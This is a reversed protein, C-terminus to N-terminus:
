SADSISTEGRAARAEESAVDVSLQREGITVEMPERLFEFVPYITRWDDGEPSRLDVAVGIYRTTPALSLEVRQRQEPYILLERPEATLAPEIQSAGAGWFEELPVTRFADDDNLQYVRVLAANGGGNMDAGGALDLHSMTVRPSCAVLFPLLLLALVHPRPPTLASVM